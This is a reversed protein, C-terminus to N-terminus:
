PCCGSSKDFAYEDDNAPRGSVLSYDGILMVNQFNDIGIGFYLQVERKVPSVWKIFPDKDHLNGQDQDSNYKLGDKVMRAAYRAMGDRIDDKSILRVDSAQSSSEYAETYILFNNEDVGIMAVSIPGGVIRELFVFAVKALNSIKVISCMSEQTFFQPDPQDPHRNDRLRQDFVARLDDFEKKTLYGSFKEKDFDILGKQKEEILLM